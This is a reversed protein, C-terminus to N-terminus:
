RRQYLSKRRKDNSYFIKAFYFMVLAVILKGVQVNILLGIFFGGQMIIWPKIYLSEKIAPAANYKPIVTILFGLFANTFVAYNLGFGHITSFELSTKGMLSFLTMIMIFISFFIASVFFMQHPQSCFKEKWTQEIIQQKPSTSFQM